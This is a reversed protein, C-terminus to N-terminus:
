PAVNGKKEAKEDHLVIGKTKEDKIQVHEQLDNNDVDDSSSM